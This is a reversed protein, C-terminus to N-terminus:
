RSILEILSKVKDINEKKVLGIEEEDDDVYLLEYDQLILECVETTTMLAIDEINALKDKIALKRIARMMGKHILLENLDEGIM